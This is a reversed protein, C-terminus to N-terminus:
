VRSALDNVGRDRLHQRAGRRVAFLAGIVAAYLIPGFRSVSWGPFSEEWEVRHRGAPIPIASFALQAPSVEVEQGDIRVVRHRWFGRLVFLWTPAPTRTELILREPSRELVRVEGPPLAGRSSRGTEVVIEGPALKTIQRLASVADPEERWRAALRIDPLAAPNEDWDDLGNGGIRVYGPLPIQDRYRLGWRLSLSGFFSAPDDFREAGWSLKRLSQVRSLDGNDLDTNFVAGRGWLVQSHADFGRRTLETFGLDNGAEGNELAGPPRYVMEGLTRYQGQPDHKALFRMLKPPALVEEEGFTWGIRRTAFIPVVTLLALGALGIPRRGPRLALELGVVTAMWLLAAETLARPLERSAVDIQESGSRTSGLAVRATARPAAAAIIALLALAVGAPLIWRPLGARARLADFAIGCLLALGFAILVAFKEPGRLAVPVLSDRWSSPILSPTVSFLISILVLFKGFRAAPTRLRRSAVLAILGLAGAYLTMFLGMMKGSFIQWGWVATRDNTWNAGFPYPIVLELLRYPSVSFYLAERWTIGAVARNTEPVWLLTALIQPLGALAALAASASLLLLLRRRAGPEAGLGIWALCSVIAFGTTFVDGALIDLALLASLLFTKSAFSGSAVVAWVIWPLLAIGPQIHTFFVASVTVGSFAYTVAGIWAGARSTGLARLLVIVGIGALAWHLVPFLKAALPFRLPSLLIWIPYMAGVNPNPLLPRGGSIESVWVPFHGRAYADHIAKEMPLDYAILDRGAFNRRAFLPDSWVIGILLLFLLGPLVRAMSPGRGQEPDM